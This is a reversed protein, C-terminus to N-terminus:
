NSENLWRQGTEAAESSNCFAIKSERTVNMSCYESKYLAACTWTKVAHMFAHYPSLQASAVIVLTGIM